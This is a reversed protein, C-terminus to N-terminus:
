HFLNKISHSLKGLKRDLRLEGLHDVGRGVSQAGNEAIESLRQQIDELLQAARHRPPPPTLARVALMALVGLGAAALLTAGPRQRVCKEICAASTKCANKATTAANELPADAAIDPHEPTNM